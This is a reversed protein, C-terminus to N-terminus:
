TQGHRSPLKDQCAKNTTPIVETPEFGDKSHYFSLEGDNDFRVKQYEINNITENVDPKLIAQYTTGLFTITVLLSYSEVDDPSAGLLSWFGDVLEGRTNGEGLILRSDSELKADDIHKICASFSGDVDGNDGNFYFEVETDDLSNNTGLELDSIKLTFGGVETFPESGEPISSAAIIKDVSDFDSGLFDIKTLNSLDATKEALSNLITDVLTQQEPTNGETFFGILNNISPDPDNVRENVTKIVLTELARSSGKADSLDFGADNTDVLKNVLKPLDSAIKAIREFGLPNLESGMDLPLQFEKREYVKRLSAEAADLVKVLTNENEITDDLPEGFSNIIQEALSPYVASTADNPTGLNEGIEDYTDTLRDSLVTVVKHIKLSTNLLHRNIAGAGDSNLYDIDLHSENISLSSLLNERNSESEVNSLLSTIPSIVLNEIKTSDEANVRRSMQGLFPEGTIVDYGADIRIVVNGYEINSILCYQMEQATAEAACYDTDTLPNYSYYGDNDTFAFAEWADRTGNNNSDIFVTARALHGDIAQGSFTQQNISVKGEDQDTGGCASLFFIVSLSLALKKKSFTKNINKM